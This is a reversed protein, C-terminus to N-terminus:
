ARRRHVALAALGTLMLVLPAPLPVPATSYSLDGEGDTELGEYAFFAEDIDFFGPVFSFTDPTDVSYSLGLFANDFYVLEALGDDETYTLGGFQFSLRQVPLFEEGFGTLAATDALMTASFSQGALDGSTVSVDAQFAVPAATAATGSLSLTAAALALAFITKTM